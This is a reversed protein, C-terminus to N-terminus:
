FNLMGEFGKGSVYEKTWKKIQSINFPIVKKNCLKKLIRKELTGLKGDILFALIMIKGIAEKINDDSNKIKEIYNESLVHEKKIPIDFLKLFHKAFLYDTPYFNKKTIAVFEITDYILDKFNQNNKYKEYFHEGTKYMLEQAHMRMDARRIIISASYANWFAYIPIGAFDTVSRIAIRGLIKQIVIRFIFNSLFAKIIFMARLMLLSIRSFNQYPNIGLETFKKRDKGLGINVLEITEAEPENINSSPSFGYISSIKSVVKIDAKILFFIEIGVLILGYLIEIFSLKYKYNVFPLEIEQYYFAEPYINIPLYLFLVGLAGLLASYILHKQTTRKVLNRKKNADLSQKNVKKKSKKLFYILAAKDTFDRINDIDFRPM